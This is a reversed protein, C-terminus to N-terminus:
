LKCRFDENHRANMSERDFPLAPRLRRRQPGHTPYVNGERRTHSLPLANRASPLVRAMPGRLFRQAAFAASGRHSYRSRIIRLQMKFLRSSVSCAAPVIMQLHSNVTHALVPRM